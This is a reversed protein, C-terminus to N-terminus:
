LGGSSPRAISGDPQRPLRTTWTADGRTPSWCPPRILAVMSLIGLDRSFIARLRFLRSLFRSCRQLLNHLWPYNRTASRRTNIIALVDSENLPTLLLRHNAMIEIPKRLLVGHSDRLGTTCQDINVNCTGKSKALTTWPPIQDVWPGVPQERLYFRRLDNQRAAVKGCFKAHSLDERHYERWTDYSVQANFYSPFGTTRCNPQLIAIRSFALQSIGGSGGCLELVDVKSHRGYCLTPIIPSYMQTLNLLNGRLYRSSFRRRM